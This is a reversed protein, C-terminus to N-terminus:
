GMPFINQFGVLVFLINLYLLLYLGCFVWIMLDGAAKWIGNGGKGIGQLHLVSYSLLQVPLTLIFFGLVWIIAEVSFFVGTTFSLGQGLLATLASIGFLSNVEIDLLIFTLALVFLHIYLAYHRIKEDKETNIPPRKYFRIYIFVAVGLIWLFILEYPFRIGDASDKAQPLYFHDGLFTLICDGQITPGSSSDLNSVELSNFRVFGFSSFQQKSQDITVTDNTQLFVIAGNAIFSATRIITELENLNEIFIATTNNHLNSEVSDSVNEILRRIKIEDPDAPSISLALTQNQTSYDLPFLSLPPNQTLSFSVDQLIIYDNQSGGSWRINGNKDKIQIVSTNSVTSLVAFDASCQMLIPDRSASILFRSSVNPIIDLNIITTVAYNLDASVLMEGNQVGLLFLGQETVIDVDVYQSLHDYYLAILDEISTAASLDIDEAVIVSNVETIQNSGLFPFGEMDSVLSSNIILNMPYGTSTGNIVTKGIFFGQTDSSITGNMESSSTFLGSAIPSLVFLLLLLPFLLLKKM